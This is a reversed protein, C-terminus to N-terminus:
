KMVNKGRNKVEYCKESEDCRMVNIQSMVNKAGMNHSMVNKAGMKQIMM